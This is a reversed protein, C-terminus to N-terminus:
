LDSVDKIIKVFEKPRLSAGGILLGAMRSERLYDLANTENVSGGYLVPIKEAASRSYLRTMIKRILLNTVQAQVPQCANGTGVAWIPEYAIAIEGIRTRPIKRLGKEIQTKIVKSFEGKNKEEETEGICLIPKLGNRLASEIKKNIGLDREKFYSRRESHGILVYKCNLSRLMKASIEGTFAGKDQWFCNQAGLKLKSRKVKLEPLYVFPPCIVVEVNKVKKVGKKVLDFLRKAESLSTPNCKWNAVILSKM